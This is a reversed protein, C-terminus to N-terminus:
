SILPCSSKLPKHQKSELTGTIVKVLSKFFGKSTQSAFLLITDNENKILLTLTENYKNAMQIKEQSNKSEWEQAKHINKKSTLLKKKIDKTM